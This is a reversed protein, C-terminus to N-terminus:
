ILKLKRALKKSLKKMKRIDYNYEKFLEERIALAILYKKHREENPDISSNLYEQYVTLM